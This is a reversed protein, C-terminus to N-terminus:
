VHSFNKQIKKVKTIKNTGFKQKCILQCLDLCEFIGSSIQVRVYLCRKYHIRADHPTEAEKKEGLPGLRIHPSPLM